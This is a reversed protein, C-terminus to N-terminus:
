ASSDVILYMRYTSYVTDECFSCLTLTISYQFSKFYILAIKIFFLMPCENAQHVQFRVCWANEYGSPKMGLIWFLTTTVFPSPMLLLNKKPPCHSM